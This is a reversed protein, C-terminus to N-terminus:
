LIIGSRGRVLHTTASSSSAPPPAASRAGAIPPRAVGDTRVGARTGRTATEGAARMRVACVVASLAGFAALGRPAAGRAASSPGPHSDNSGGTTVSRADTASLCARGGVCCLGRGERSLGGHMRKRKPTQQRNWGLRCRGAQTSRSASGQVSGGM